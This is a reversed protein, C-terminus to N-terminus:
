WRQYDSYRILEEDFDCIMNLIPNYQKINKIINEAIEIPLKEGSTYASTYDHVTSPKWELDGSSVTYM